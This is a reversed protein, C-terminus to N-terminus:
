LEVLAEPHFKPAAKKEARPVPNVKASAAVLMVAWRMGHVGM